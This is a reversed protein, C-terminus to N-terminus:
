NSWGLNELKLIIYSFLIIHTLAGDKKYYTLIERQNNYIKGMRM